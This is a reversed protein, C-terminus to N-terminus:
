SSSRCFAAQIREAKWISISISMMNKPARVNRQWLISCSKCDLISQRSVGELSKLSVIYCDNCIRSTKYEDIIVVLLDGAAERKKLTRWFYKSSIM